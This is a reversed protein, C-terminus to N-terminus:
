LMIMAMCCTRRLRMDDADSGQGLVDSVGPAGDTAASKAGMTAGSRHDIHAAEFEFALAAHMRGGWNFNAGTPGYGFSM